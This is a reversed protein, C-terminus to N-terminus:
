ATWALWVVVLPVRTVPLPLPWCNRVGDVPFAAATLGDLLLGFNIKSGCVGFCVVVEVFFAPEKKWTAAVGM